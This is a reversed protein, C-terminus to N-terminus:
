SPMAIESRILRDLNESRGVVCSFALSIADVYEGRRKRERPSPADKDYTGRSPPVHPAHTRFIRALSSFIEQRLEQSHGADGEQQGRLDDRLASARAILRDLEDALTSYDPYEPVTLPYPWTSFMPKMDDAIASRLRTGPNIVNAELWDARKTLSMNFPAGTLDCPLTAIVAFYHACVDILETQLRKAGEASIHLMKALANMVADDFRQAAETRYDSLCIM